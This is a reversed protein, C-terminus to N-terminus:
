LRPDEPSPSIEAEPESINGSPGADQSSFSLSDTSWSGMQYVFISLIVVNFVGVATGPGLLLPIGNSVYM